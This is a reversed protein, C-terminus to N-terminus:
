IKWLAEAMCINVVVAIICATHTHTDSPDSLKRRRKVWFQELSSTGAEEGECRPLLSVFHQETNLLLDRKEKNERSMSDWATAKSKKNM